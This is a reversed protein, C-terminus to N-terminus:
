KESRQGTDGAEDAWLEQVKKSLVLLAAAEALAKDKRELQRELERIQKAESKAAKSVPSLGALAGLRWAQLTQEHLGHRRLYEGLQLENLGATEIVAGLREEAKWDEPRRPARVKTEDNSHKVGGRIAVQRRWRLLTTFHVGVERALEEAKPGGPMCLRQVM